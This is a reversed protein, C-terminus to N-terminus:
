VRLKYPRSPPEGGRPKTRGIGKGRSVSGGKPREPSHGVLALVRCELKGPVKMTAVTSERMPLGLGRSARSPADLASRGVAQLEQHQRLADRPPLEGQVQRRRVARGPLRGAGGPFPA